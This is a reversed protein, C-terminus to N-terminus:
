EATAQQVLPAHSHSIQGTYFDTATDVLKYRKLLDELVERRHLLPAKAGSDLHRHMNVATERILSPLATLTSTTNDLAPGVIPTEDVGKTYLIKVNILCSPLPSLVIHVMTNETSTLPVYDDPEETWVILVRTNLHQVTEEPSDEKFFTSVAFIVETNYTAYYPAQVGTTVADLDGKYGRHQRMDVLWGLNQVFQLYEASGLRNNIIVSEEKEGRNIYLV